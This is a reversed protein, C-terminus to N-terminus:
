LAWGVAAVIVLAFLAVDHLLLRRRAGEAEAEKKLLAKRLRQSESRATKEAERAEELDAELHGAKMEFFVAKGTTEASETSLEKRSVHFGIAM